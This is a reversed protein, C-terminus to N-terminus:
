REKRSREEDEMTIRGPAEKIIDAVKYLQILETKLDNSLEEQDDRHMFPINTDDM